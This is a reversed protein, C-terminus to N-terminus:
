HDLFGVNQEPNLMKLLVSASNGNIGEWAIKDVDDTLVSTNEMELRLLVQIINYPLM